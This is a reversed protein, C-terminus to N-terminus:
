PGTKFLRLAARESTKQYKAYAGAAKKRVTGAPEGAAWSRIIADLTYAEPAMLGTTTILPSCSAKELPKAFYSSSKCALVVACDPNPAGGNEPYSELSTDMLGNHGVFCIMDADGGTKIKEGSALNIETRSKGAAASFFNTLTEKMNAGDYADAVIYVPTAAGKSKFVARDLIHKKQPATGHKVVSWHASKKLFTKVGYMAGWYLNNKPDQGNGLAASVKVIGQNRNDCLCVFVHVVKYKRPQKAPNVASKKLYGRPHRFNTKIKDADALFRVTKIICRVLEAGEKARIRDPTDGPTHYNDGYGTWFFISPIYRKNFELNDGRGFVKSRQLAISSNKFGADLAKGFAPSMTVGMAAVEGKCLGIQDLNIVAATNELPFLPHAVYFGAGKMGVEEGTTSLLIISRKPKINEAAIIRAAELLGAVGSANDDAGRYVKKDERRRGLHDHHAMVIVAENKLKANSGPIIGIVNRSKVKAGGHEYTVAQFFTGNDGKPEVGAAKLQEAIYDAAKRCGETGSKRGELKEDALFKIHSLFSEPTVPESRGSVESTCAPLFIPILLLALLFKKKM